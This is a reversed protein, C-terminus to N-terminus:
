TLISSTHVLPLIISISKGSELALHIRYHLFGASHGLLLCGSEGATPCLPFQPLAKSLLTTIDLVNNLGKGMTSAIVCESLFRGRCM